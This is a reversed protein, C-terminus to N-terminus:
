ALKEKIEQSVVEASYSSSPHRGMLDLMMGHAVRERNKRSAPTEQGAAQQLEKM